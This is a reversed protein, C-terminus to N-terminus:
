SPLSVTEAEQSGGSLSASAGTPSELDEVSEVTTGNAAEHEAELEAAAQALPTYEADTLRASIGAPNSPLDGFSWADLLKWTTADSLRLVLAWEDESLPPDLTELGGDDDEGTNAGVIQKFRKSGIRAVLVSLPRGKFVPVRAPDALIAWQEGPLDVRARGDDLKTYPM